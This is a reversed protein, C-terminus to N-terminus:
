IHVKLVGGPSLSEPKNARTPSQRESRGGRGLHPAPYPTSPATAPQPIPWHPFPDRCPTLPECFLSWGGGLRFSQNRLYQVRFGVLTLGPQLHPDQRFSMMSYPSSVSLCTPDQPAPDTPCAPSNWGKGTPQLFSRPHETDQCAPTLVLVPATGLWEAVLSTAPSQPGQVSPWPQSSIMGYWWETCGLFRWSSSSPGCKSYSRM